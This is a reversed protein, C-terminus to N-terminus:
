KICKNRMSASKRPMKRREACGQTNNHCKVGKETCAQMRELCNKEGKKPSYYRTITIDNKNMSKDIGFNKKKKGRSRTHDPTMAGLRRRKEELLPRQRQQTNKKSESIGNTTKLAHANEKQLM